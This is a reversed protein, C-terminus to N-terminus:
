TIYEWESPTKGSIYRLPLSGGLADIPVLLTTHHLTIYCSINSGCVVSDGLQATIFLVVQILLNCTTDNM